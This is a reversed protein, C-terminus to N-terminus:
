LQKRLTRHIQDYYHIINKIDFKEQIKRHLNQGLFNYREPTQYLQKLIEVTQDFPSAKDVVFANERDVVYEEFDGVGHCVIVPKEALAAEKAVGNSSESESLHIVADCAHLYNFVNKQYGLMIISEELHNARIYERLTEEEEGTDLVLLKIDIGEQVLKHVIQFMLLHRKIKILRGITLLILKAKYKNRIAEVETPSPPYFLDFDYALPIVQLNQAKGKEEELIYHYAKNSVVVQHKAFRNMLKDTLMANKLGQIKFWDVHHRFLYIPTRTLFQAFLAVLNASLHSYVIDIKYRHIFKLLYLLHKFYYVPSIKKEIPYAFTTVGFKEMETHLDGKPFYTLLYVRHGQGAFAKGVSEISVAKSSSTHYILINM